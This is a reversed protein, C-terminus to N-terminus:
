SVDCKTLNNIVNKGFIKRVNASFLSFIDLLSYVEPVDNAFKNVGWGGGGVGGYLAYTLPIHYM